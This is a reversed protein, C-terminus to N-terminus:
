RVSERGLPQRALHRHQTSGPLGHMLVIERVTWEVPEIFREEVVHRDRLLTMHPTFPRARAPRADFTDNLRQHLIELGMTAEEGRLVFAGNRFSGVRDFAVTFSPMTLGAAREIASEVLEPPLGFGDGVHCLPVHLHEPRLARGTLGHDAKFCAALRSIRLATAADPLAAFFLRDTPGRDFLQREYRRVRAVGL